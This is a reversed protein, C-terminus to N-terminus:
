GSSSYSRRAGRATDILATIRQRTITTADDVLLQFDATEMALAILGIVGVVLYRSEVVVNTEAAIIGARRAEDLYDSIRTLWGSYGEPAAIHGLEPEKRLRLAARALRGHMVSSTVHHVAEMITDLPNAEKRNVAIFAGGAYAQNLVAAALMAKTPFYYTVLSKSVGAREAIRGISAASFGEEDLECIAVRLIEHATESHPV